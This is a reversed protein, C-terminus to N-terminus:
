QQQLSRKAEIRACRAIALSTKGEERPKGGM